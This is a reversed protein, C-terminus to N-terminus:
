GRGSAALAPFIASVSFGVGPVEYADFVGGFLETRERMETIGRGAPRQTLAALDDEQTYVRQQAELNPDLGSRRARARIGDDDVKIELSRPTWTFRVSASTGEGGHALANTLAEQLIRYITLEAGHRLELRDGSEEFRVDLGADRMVKFLERTSGLSPQPAALAEGERVITMVRRLDALTARASEAIQAASRAAVAPDNSAAYRAGDAQSIITTVSHVALEHLERVIRLRSAQEALELERDIREREAAARDLRNRRGRSRTVLWLVLFAIAAAGLVGAAIALPVVLGTGTPIDM